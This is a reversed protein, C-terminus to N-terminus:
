ILRQLKRVERSSRRLLTSPQPEANLNSEKAAERPPVILDPDTSPVLTNFDEESNTTLLDPDPLPVLPDLDEKIKLSGNQNRRYVAGDNTVVDYSRPTVQRRM